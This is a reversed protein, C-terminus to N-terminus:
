GAVVFPEEVLAFPEALSVECSEISKDCLKRRAALVALCDQVRLPEHSMVREALFGVPAEHPQMIRTAITGTRKPRIVGTGRRQLPFQAHLRRRLRALDILSQKRELPFRM